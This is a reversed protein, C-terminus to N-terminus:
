SLKQASTRSNPDWVRTRTPTWLELLGVGCQLGNIGSLWVKGALHDHPYTQPYPRVRSNPYGWTNTVERYGYGWAFERRRTGTRRSRTNRANGVGSVCM